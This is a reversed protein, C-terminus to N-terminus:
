IKLCEDEGFFINYKDILYTNIYDALNVIEYVCEKERRESSL